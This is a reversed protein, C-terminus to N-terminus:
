KKRRTLQDALRLPEPLRYRVTCLLVIRISSALDIKHGPSVFLPKVNDRTRLVAGIKKGCKDRLYSFSGRREPVEVYEGFLRSKACGITPRDLLIGLHTALGMKRPHALGQGDFIIVEPKNKLARFCKELVPGERFTFLGPIYPYSIKSVKCVSEIMKLEPLSLVVVIGVAKGKRFSVDAGCVLKPPAAMKKLRIKRRLQNQLRIAQTPSLNWPHIKKFRM